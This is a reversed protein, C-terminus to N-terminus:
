GLPPGIRGPQPGKLQQAIGATVLVVVDAVEAISQNTIGQADRFRRALANDPVIGMGVENSVIAAQGKLKGLTSVLSELEMEWDKRALILNSLWLTLCDVLIFTSATDHKKIAEALKIPAEVTKWDNGRRSQHEAIRKKMERDFAQATAIYIKPDHALSEALKSKGSRAGGLILTITM